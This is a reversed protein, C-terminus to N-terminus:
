RSTRASAARDASLRVASRAINVSARTVALGPTAGYHLNVLVAGLMCAALSLPYDRRRMRLLLGMLLANAPWFVAIQGPERTLEIGLVATLMYALACGVARMMTGRSLVQHWM